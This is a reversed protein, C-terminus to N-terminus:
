ESVEENWVVTIYADNYSLIGTRIVEDSRYAHERVCLLGDSVFLYYDKQSRNSLEFIVKRSVYDFVVIREDIMGSGWSAPFCLEPTGDGTLDSLYIDGYYNGPGGLICDGDLYIKRDSGYEIKANNLEPINVSVTTLKESYDPYDIDYIKQAKASELPKKSAADVASYDVRFYYYHNLGAEDEVTVFYSWLPEDSTWDNANYRWNVSIGVEKGNRYCPVYLDIYKNIEFEADDKDAPALLSVHCAAVEFDTEFVLSATQGYSNLVVAKYNKMYEAIADTRIKSTYEGQGAKLLNKDNLFLTKVNDEQFPKEGPAETGNQPETTVISGSGKNGCSVLLMSLALLLILFKTFKM